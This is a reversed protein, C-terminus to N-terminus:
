FVTHDRVCDNLSKAALDGVDIMRVGGSIEAALISAYASRHSPAVGSDCGHLEGRWFSRVLIEFPCILLHYKPPSGSQRNAM